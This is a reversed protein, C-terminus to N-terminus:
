TSFRDVGRSPPPPHCAVCGGLSGSRWWDCGVLCQACRDGPQPGSSGRWRSPHTPQEIRAPGAPPTGQGKAHIIQRRPPRTLEKRIDEFTALDSVPSSLSGGQPPKRRGGPDETKSPSSPARVRRMTRRGGRQPMAAQRREWIADRIEIRQGRYPAVYELLLRWAQKGDLCDLIARVAAAGWDITVM